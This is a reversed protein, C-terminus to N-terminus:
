LQRLRTERLVRLAGTKSRKRRGNSGLLLAFAKMGLLAFCKSHVMNTPM